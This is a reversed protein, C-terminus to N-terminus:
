FFEGEEEEDDDEEDDDEVLAGLLDRSDKGKRESKEVL